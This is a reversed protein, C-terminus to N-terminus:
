ACGSWPRSRVRSMAMRGRSSLDAFKAADEPTMAAARMVLVPQRM